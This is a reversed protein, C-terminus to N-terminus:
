VWPDVYLLCFSSGLEREQSILGYLNLSLFVFVCALGCVCLCGSQSLSEVWGRLASHFNRKYFDILDDKLIYVFYLVRLINFNLSLENNINPHPTM